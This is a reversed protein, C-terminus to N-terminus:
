QPKAAPTMDDMTFFAVAPDHDSFREMRGPDGRYSEPYDANIRAYGFGRTHKRMNETIIMHDLVQANGDFIYSYRQSAAIAGVLNILDPNVLDDSAMAVEDKAAPKGMITGIQDLIGDPFQYSNFDGILVIREKPDVQQRSQVLKALYEAQLRKKLRVNDMQRPDNYGSYSKLHNVFVTFEFPQGAKADEISARLMLPPRDNLFVDEKTTASKYKDDKGFQKTEIVKVRATKVIFGNDIGRGDNGEILFAEYKPDPKGAAVSEANIKSALRKLVNLNEAEVVGIVDPTKLFERVARSIKTLRREFAEKEVIDERIGPDDQDDFFNEINMGVVVFQRDTPAPFPNAKTATSMAPRNDVDALVTYKGYAYHMVGVLNKVDAMAPVECSPPAIRQTLGPMQEDCDVRIVEPNSDFVVGKPLTKKFRDRDSASAFDRIDRGPERFPRPLPKLVGWFAGDSASAFTKVDVRGGTPSSVTMEGIQVRMGEYKELNDVSNSMFDASTLAIPKPLTAGSSVIKIEDRDKRMSLETITTSLVDADRKFEEVTGTVSVINALDAESPPETRTFVFIGESTKPNADAKDDPTQLFFGTRTRATVVGTLRVNQGIAPSANGDGQVQAITMDKQAHAFSAALLVSFTISFIRM